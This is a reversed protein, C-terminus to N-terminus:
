IYNRNTLIIHNQTQSVGKREQMVQLHPQRRPAVPPARVAVPSLRLLAGEVVEVVIPHTTHLAAVIM